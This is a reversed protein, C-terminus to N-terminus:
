LKIPTFKDVIDQTYRGKVTDFIMNSMGKWFPFNSNTEYEMQKIGITRIRNMFVENDTHYHLGKGCTFLMMNTRTDKDVNYNIISQFGFQKLDEAILEDTANSRFKFQVTLPKGDVGLGYGDVGNDHVSDVPKYNCVGVTPYSGLLCLYIEGFIEFIDGKMKKDDTYGYEAYKESLKDIRNLFTNVKLCGDLLKNFIKNDVNYLNVFAEHQIM